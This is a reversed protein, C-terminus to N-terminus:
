SFFQYHIYNLQILYSHKILYVEHVFLIFIFILHYSFQYIIWVIVFFILDSYFFGSNLLFHFLSSLPWDVVLLFPSPFSFLSLIFGFFSHSPTLTALAPFSASSLYSFLPFPFAILPLLTRPFPSSLYTSLFLFCNLLSVPSSLLGTNSLNFLFIHSFPVFLFSPPKSFCSTSSLFTLSSSPFCFAYLLFRHLFLPFPSSLPLFFCLLDIFSISTSFPLYSLNIFPPLRPHFLAPLPSFLFLFFISVPLTLPFYPLSLFQAPLLSVVSSLFSSVSFSLMPLLFPFLM